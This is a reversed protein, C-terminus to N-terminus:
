FCLQKGEYNVSSPLSKLERQCKKRSTSRQRPGEDQIKSKREEDIRQLLSYCQDEFGVISVGVQTSFRRYQFDLWQSREEEKDFCGQQDSEPELRQLPICQLPSLGDTEEGPQLLQPIAQSVSSPLAPTNSAVLRAPLPELVGISSPSPSLPSWRDDTLGRNTSPSEM